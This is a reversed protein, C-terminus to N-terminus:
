VLPVWTGHDVLRLVSAYGAEDFAEAIDARTESFHAWGDYHAPLVVPANLIAAAAAARAADLTLPRGGFKQPVRASGAFLM